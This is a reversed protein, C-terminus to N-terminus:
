AAAARPGEDGPMRLGAQESSAALLARVQELLQNAGFPKPVFAKINTQLLQEREVIYGRATLMLVPVQSTPGYAKLKTAMEIGSLIPMQLDTVVLAPVIPVPSKAPTGEPLAAHDCWCYGELGNRGEVVDFGAGRLKTAVISRIATEDDCVLITPRTGPMTTPQHLGQHSRRELVLM